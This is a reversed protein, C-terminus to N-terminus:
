LIGFAAFNALIISIEGVLHNRPHKQSGKLGCPCDVLGLLLFKVHNDDGGGVCRNFREFPQVQIVARNRITRHAHTHRKDFFPQIPFAM